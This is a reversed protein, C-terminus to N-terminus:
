SSISTLLSAIIAPHVFGVVGFRGKGFRSIRWAGAFTVALILVTGVPEAIRALGVVAVLAFVLLISIMRAFKAGFPGRWIPSLAFGFMSAAFLGGLLSDGWYGEERLGLAFLPIALWVKFSLAVLALALLPWRSWGRDERFLFLCSVAAALLFLGTLFVLYDM